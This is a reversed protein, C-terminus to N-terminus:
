FRDSTLFRVILSDRFIKKGKLHRQEEIEDSRVTQDHRTWFTTRIIQGFFYCFYCYLLAFSITM